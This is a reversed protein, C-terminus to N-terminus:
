SNKEAWWFIRNESNDSGPKIFGKFILRYQNLPYQECLREWFSADFQGMHQRYVCNTGTPMDVLLTGGEQLLSHANTLAKLIKEETDVTYFDERGEANHLGLCGVLCIHDYQYGPSFDMIDATYHGYPSGHRRVREDIDITEFLKPDNLYAYYRTNYDRVGVFLIRGRLSPLYSHTLWTVMSKIEPDNQFHPSMEYTSAHIKSVGLCMPMGLAFSLLM